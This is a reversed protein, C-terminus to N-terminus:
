EAKHLLEHVLQVHVVVPFFDGIWATGFHSDELLSFVSQSHGKTEGSLVDLSGGATEEIELSTSSPFSEMPATELLLILILIDHLKDVRVGALVRLVDEKAVHAFSLLGVRDEDDETGEDERGRCDKVSMVKTGENALEDQPAVVGDFVRRMGVALHEPLGGVWAGEMGNM